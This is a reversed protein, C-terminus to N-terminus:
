ATAGKPANQNFIETVNPANQAGADAAFPKWKDQTFSFFNAIINSPFSRVGYQYEQVAGNYYDRETKIRNETGELQVQLAMYQENAKLQPYNEVVVLLRSLANDLQSGAAQIEEPTKASGISARARTVQELVDGEYNSYQKVVAVLNPILDARRQYASQVNAFKEQTGTDLSVLHNYTGAIWSAFTFVIVGLVIVVGLLWVWWPMGTKVIKVDVKKDDESM